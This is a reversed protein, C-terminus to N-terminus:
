PKPQSKFPSCSLHFVVCSGDCLCLVKFDDYVRDALVLRLEDLPPHIRHLLGVLYNDEVRARGVRSDRQEAGVARLDLRLPVGLPPRNGLVLLYDGVLLFRRPPEVPRAVVRYVEGLSEDGVRVHEDAGVEVLYQEWAPALLQLLSPDAVRLLVAVGRSGGLVLIYPVELGVSRVARFNQYSFICVGVSPLHVCGTWSIM